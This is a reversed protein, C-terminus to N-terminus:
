ELVILRLEIKNIKTKREDRQTHIETNKKAHSCRSAYFRSGKTNKCYSKWISFWRLFHNTSNQIHSKTARIRHQLSILKKINLQINSVINSYFGLFSQQTDFPEIAKFSGMDLIEINCYKETDFEFTPRHWFPTFYSYSTRCDTSHHWKWHGQTVWPM